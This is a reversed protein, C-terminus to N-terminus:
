LNSCNIPILLEEPILPANISINLGYYRCLNALGIGWVFLDEDPSDYFDTTFPYDEKDVSCRKTHNEM